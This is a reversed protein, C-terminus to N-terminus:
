YAFDWYSNSFLSFFKQKGESISTKVHNPTVQQVGDPSGKEKRKCSEWSRWNTFLRTFQLRAGISVKCVIICSAELFPM